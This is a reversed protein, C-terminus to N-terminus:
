NNGKHNAFYNAAVMQMYASIAWDQKAQTQNASLRVVINGLKCTGIREPGCLGLSCDVQKAVDGLM